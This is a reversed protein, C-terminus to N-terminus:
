DGNLLRPLDWRGVGPVSDGRAFTKEDDHMKQTPNSM